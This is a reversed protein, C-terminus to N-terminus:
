SRSNTRSTIHCALGLLGLSAVVLLSPEPVATTIVATLGTSDYYADAGANVGFDITSGPVVAVLFDFPVPAGGDPVLKNFINIGNVTIFGSTPGVPDLDFFNGTIQVLGSYALEGGSGVTYRRVAPQLSNVAPHMFGNIGHAPTGLADGGYWGTGSPAWGNTSFTGTTVNAETYSGYQIGNIGQSSNNFDAQVDALPVSTSALLPASVCHFALIAVASAVSFSKM